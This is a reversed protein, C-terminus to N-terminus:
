ESNSRWLIVGGPLAVVIAFLAPPGPPRFLGTGGPEKVRRVALLLKWIRFAEPCRREVKCPNHSATVIWRNPPPDIVAMLPLFFNHLKRPAHLGLDAWVIRRSSAPIQAVEPSRTIQHEHNTTQLAFFTSVKSILPIQEATGLAGFRSLLFNM